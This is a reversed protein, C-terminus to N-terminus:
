SADASPIEMMGYVTCVCAGGISVAPLVSVLRYLISVGLPKPVIHGGLILSILDSGLDGGGELDVNM